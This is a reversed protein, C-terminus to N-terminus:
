TTSSASSPRSPWATPWCASAIPSRNRDDLATLVAARVVEAIVPDGGAMADFLVTLGLDQVLDAHHAPPEARPDLDRDAYMLHVKM